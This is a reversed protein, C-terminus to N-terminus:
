KQQEFHLWVMKVVIDNKPAFYKLNKYVFNTLGTQQGSVRLKAQEQNSNWNKANVLKADKVSITNQKGGGKIKSWTLSFNNFKNATNQRSQVLISHKTAVRM